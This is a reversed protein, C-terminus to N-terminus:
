HISNSGPLFGIYSPNNPIDHGMRRLKVIKERAWRSCKGFSRATKSRDYNLATLRKLFVIDEIEELTQYYKNGVVVGM